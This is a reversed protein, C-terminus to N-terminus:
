GGQDYIRRKNPDRLTQYAESLKQFEETAEAKRAPDSIHDPHLKHALGRFAAQM